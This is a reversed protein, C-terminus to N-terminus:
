CSALSQPVKMMVRISRNKIERGKMDNDNIRYGEIGSMSMNEREGMTTDQQM